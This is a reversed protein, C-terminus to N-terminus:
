YTTMTAYMNPLTIQMITGEGYKSKIGITGNLREVAQKVIYLGLGSGDSRETARVFMGFIKNLFEEKIGIGNDEFSIHAVSPEIDINIILYSSEKAYPNLYKVANSIINRFISNIKLTDSYFKAKKDNVNIEIIIKSFNELYKLDNLCEDILIHFFIEEPQQNERSVRAFNLMSKVFMDLRLVSKEIHKVSEQLRVPDSEIKMLNVLGLISTFPSRIDHSIKYVFQDLEFNRDSLEKVLISMENKQNTLIENTEDLERNKISLSNFAIKLDEQQNILEENAKMLKKEHEALIQNQENLLQTHYTYHRMFKKIDSEADKQATIDTIVGIIQAISGDANKKFTQVDDRVWHWRRNTDKLRYEGTVVQKDINQNVAERFNVLAEWDASHILEKMQDTSKGLIEQPNYGFLLTIKDNFFIYQHLTLDYIYVLNPVTHLLKEIFYSEQGKTSFHYDNTFTNEM